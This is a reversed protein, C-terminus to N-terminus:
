KLFHKNNLYWEVTQYIGDNFSINSKWGLTKIKDANVAYRFDHGKRDEVFEILNKGSGIVDCIKNVIEINTLESNAAINYIENDKGKELLFSLADCNDFVHLWDRMQLGQGYIPIPKKDLICKIVRPILKNPTQRPGYNNSCRTINYILGHTESAAKILLEGAAKSASYSNRPNLSTTEDLLNDSISNVHYAVEDTSLYILKKVNFSLCANIINQTGLVNSTIFENPDTISSDVCSAAAGHIVIDPTEYQFIKNIIHSDRLDAIHFDHNKNAYIANADQTVKDLSVFKYPSKGHIAKRIFNGMIFGCTGTLLIKKM